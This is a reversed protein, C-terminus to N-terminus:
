SKRDQFSYGEHLVGSLGQQAPEVVGVGHLAPQLVDELVMGIVGLVHRLSFAADALVQLLGAPVGLQDLAQDLPHAAAGGRHLGRHALDGAEELAHRGAGRRVLQDLIPKGIVRGLVELDRGVPRQDLTRAGEALVLDDADALLDQAVLLLHGAPQLLAQRHQDLVVQALPGRDARARALAAEGGGSGRWGSMGARRSAGSGPKGAPDPLGEAEGPLRSGGPRGRTPVGRAYLPCGVMIRGDSFGWCRFRYLSMRRRIRYRRESRIWSGSSASSSSSSAVPAAGGSASFSAESSSASPGVSM